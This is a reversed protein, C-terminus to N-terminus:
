RTPGCHGNLISSERLANQRLISLFIEMRIHYAANFFGEKLEEISAIKRECGLHHNIIAQATEPSLSTKSLSEV